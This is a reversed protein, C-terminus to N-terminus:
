PQYGDAIWKAYIDLQEQTWYPGDPPMSPPNGILTDQVALANAPVSMYAYDDLRVGYDNMQEVDFPRFLPRIDKAFSVKM